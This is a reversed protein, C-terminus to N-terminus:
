TSLKRAPDDVRNESYDRGVAEKRAAEEWPRRDEEILAKRAVDAEAWAAQEKAYADDVM